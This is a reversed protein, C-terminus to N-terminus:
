CMVVAAAFAASAGVAEAAAPFPLDLRRTKVLHRKESVADAAQSVFRLLLSVLLEPKILSQRAGVPALDVCM